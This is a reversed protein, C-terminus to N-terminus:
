MEMPVAQGRGSPSPSRRGSGNGGTKHSPPVWKEGSVKKVAEKVVVLKAGESKERANLFEKLVRDSDGDCNM